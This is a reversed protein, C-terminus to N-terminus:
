DKTTSCILLRSLDGGSCSPFASRLKPRFITHAAVIDSRGAIVTRCLPVDNHHVHPHASIEGRFLVFLNELEEFCTASNVMGPKRIPKAHNGCRSLCGIFALLHTTFHIEPVLTQSLNSHFSLFLAIIIAAYSQCMNQETARRFMDNSISM